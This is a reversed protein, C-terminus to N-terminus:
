FVAYVETNTNPTGDNADVSEALIIGTMRSNEKVSDNKNDGYYHLSVYPAQAYETDGTKAVGALSSLRSNRTRRGRSRFQAQAEIAYLAVSLINKFM